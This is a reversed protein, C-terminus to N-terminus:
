NDGIRWIGHKIWAIMLDIKWGEIMGIPVIIDILGNILKV